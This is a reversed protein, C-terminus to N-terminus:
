LRYVYIFNLSFLFYNIDFLCKPASDLYIFISIMHKTLLIPRMFYFNLSAEKHYYKKTFYKYTIMKM